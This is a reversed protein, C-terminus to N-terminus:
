ILWLFSHAHPSIQLFGLFLSGKEWITETGKPLTLVLTLCSSKLQSKLLVKRREKACLVVVFDVCGCSKGLNIKFNLFLPPLLPLLAAPGPGSTGLTRYLAPSLSLGQSSSGEKGM